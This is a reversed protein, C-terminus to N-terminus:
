SVATQVGLKLTTQFDMFGDKFLEPGFSNDMPGKDILWDAEKAHCVLFCSGCAARILMLLNTGKKRFVGLSHMIFHMGLNCGVCGPQLGTTILSGTAEGYDGDSGHCGPMERWVVAASGSVNERVPDARQLGLSASAVDHFIGSPRCKPFCDSCGRRAGAVVNM